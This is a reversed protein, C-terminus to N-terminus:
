LRPLLDLSAGEVSEIRDRDGTPGEVVAPRLGLMLQRSGTLLLRLERPQDMAEHSCIISPQSSRPGSSTASAVRSRNPSSHLAALPM